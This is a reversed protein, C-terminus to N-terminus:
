NHPQPIYAHHKALIDMVGGVGCGMFGTDLFADWCSVWIQTRSSSMGENELRYELYVSILDWSYILFCVVGVLLIAYSLKASFSSKPLRFFLFVAAFIVFGLIGGRSANLIFVYLVLVIPVVAM